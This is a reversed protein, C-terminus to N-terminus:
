GIYMNSSGSAIHGCTALNGEKCVRKGNIYVNSRSAIMRSNTHIGTGHSQVEDNDVSIPQSNSFVTTNGGGLIVGGAIDINVRCVKSM